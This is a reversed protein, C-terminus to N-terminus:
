GLMSNQLDRLQMSNPEGGMIGRVANNGLNMEPNQSMAQASEPNQQGGPAGAAGAVGPAAQKPPNLVDEKLIKTPDDGMKEITEAALENIDIQQPFFSMYVRVKELQLAKEIDRSMTKRTSPVVVVDYEFQRIYDPDLAIIEINKNAVKSAVLARAKLENKAPRDNANSYMEIIKEGRKGDSLTTNGVKFTNFVQKFEKTGGNGLVQEIRPSNKDTWFQLINGARLMAKRKIGYNITRGFLTLMAAVGDAAVRIEQATTRGGVGAQGSSVSDISSQEMVKRTYELIYEHWGTPTGLNLPMFAQNLPLGQTDVPTRRGPRLYDDEISDSGATLLPPFITLFSQDLLMNELVNLVDQLSKLRDPLSKGYFFDSGFYDFRIDWFPLEKHNFPLPSIEWGGGKVTVPNLWVGNATIVYEDKDRNYYRIVEVMGDSVEGSIFDLYYPRCERENTFQLMPRVNQSQAYMSWENMFKQYPTVNRWFCYSMDKVRRMGVHQPYFDELPIIYGKPNNTREDESSFTLEDAVNTVNRITRVRSDLGEYGIATGKVIAELLIHLMLEEYDDLDESYVYLDNLISAKRTDDDGRSSFEAMPLVQIIKGLVALVKNRTFPDHIRAQWDEIDEREDINTTFRRVSDEIYDILNIGDFYQFNRNRDLAALRYQDFVRGIVSREQDTPEYPDFTLQKVNTVIADKKNTKRSAM